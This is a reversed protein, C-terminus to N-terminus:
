TIQELVLQYDARVQGVFTGGAEEVLHLTYEDDTALDILQTKVAGDTYVEVRMEFQGDLIQTTFTYKDGSNCFGFNVLKKFNPSKYNFVNNKM